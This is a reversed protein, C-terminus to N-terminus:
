AAAAAQLGKVSAHAKGPRTKRPGGTPIPMKDAPMMRAM